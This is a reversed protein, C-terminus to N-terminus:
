LPDIENASPNLNPSAVPVDLTYGCPTRQPALTPEVPTWTGPAFILAFPCARDTPTWQFAHIRFYGRWHGRIAVYLRADGAAPLFGDPLQPLNWAQQREPGEHKHQWVARSM